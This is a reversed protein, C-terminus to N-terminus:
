TTEGQLILWREHIQAPMQSSGRWCGLIRDSKLKVRVDKWHALRAVCQLSHVWAGHYLISWLVSNNRICMYKSALLLHDGSWEEALQLKLFYNKSVWVQKSCFCLHWSAAKGPRPVPQAAPAQTKRASAGEKYFLSSTVNVTPRRTLYLSKKLFFVLAVSLIM